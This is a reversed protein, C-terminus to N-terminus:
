FFVVDHTISGDESTTTSYEKVDELKQISLKYDRDNQLEVSGNDCMVINNIGNYSARITM